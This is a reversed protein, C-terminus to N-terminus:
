ATERGVPEDSAAAASRAGAYTETLALAAETSGPKAAAVRTVLTQLSANAAVVSVAPSILPAPMPQLLPQLAISPNSLAHLASPAFGAPQAAPAAAASLTVPAPAKPAIISAPSPLPLLAVSLVVAFLKKSSPLLNNM